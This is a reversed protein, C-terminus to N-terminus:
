LKVEGWAIMQIDDTTWDLENAAARVSMNGDRVERIHDFVHRSPSFGDFVDWTGIPEDAAFDIRDDPYEMKWFSVPFGWVKAVELAQWISEYPGKELKYNYQFIKFM